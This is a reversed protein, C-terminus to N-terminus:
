PCECSAEVRFVEGRAHYPMMLALSERKVGRYPPMRIRTRICTGTVHLINRPDHFCRKVKVRETTAQTKNEIHFPKQQWGSAQTGSPAM